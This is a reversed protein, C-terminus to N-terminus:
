MDTVTNLTKIDLRNNRDSFKRMKCRRRFLMVEQKLANFSQIVFSFVNELAGQKFLCSYKKISNNNLVGAFLYKKNEESTWM